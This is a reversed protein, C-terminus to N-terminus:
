SRDLDLADQLIALVTFNSTGERAVADHAAELHANLWLRITTCVPPLAEEMCVDTHSVFRMTQVIADRGSSQRWAHLIRSCVSDGGDM